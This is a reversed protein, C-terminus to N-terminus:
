RTTASTPHSKLWDSWAAYDNGFDRGTLERLRAIAEERSMDEPNVPAKDIEEVYRAVQDRDLPTKAAARAKSVTKRFQGQPGIHNFLFAAYVLAVHRKPWDAGQSLSFRGRKPPALLADRMKADTGFRDFLAIGDKLVLPMLRDALNAVPQRRRLLWKGNGDDSPGSDLRVRIQARFWEYPKSRDESSFRREFRDLRKSLVGADVDFEASDYKSKHFEIGGVCEGM